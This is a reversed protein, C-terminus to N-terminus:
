VNLIESDKVFSLITSSAFAFSLFSTTLRVPQEKYKNKPFSSHRNATCCLLTRTESLFPLHHDCGIGNGAEADKWGDEKFQVYGGASGNKDPLALAVGSETSLKLLTRKLKKLTM